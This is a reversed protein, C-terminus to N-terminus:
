MDFVMEVWDFNFTEPHGLHSIEFTNLTTNLWSFAPQMDHTPGSQAMASLPQTKARMASSYKADIGMEDQFAVGPGCVANPDTLDGRESIANSGSPVNDECGQISLPDKQFDNYRIIRRLSAEDVVNAHDRRFIQARSTKEYSYHDGYIREMATQNTIEFLFPNAIRNYSAYYSQNRLYGTHDAFVVYPGPMQELVFLLGDALPAGPEFRNTDLVMFMNNYTGSNYQAFTECWSAGDVALRNAIMNRAWDPVTQPVVYSWLSSNHNGITTETVLLGSSLSYFDDNSYLCGPYSSFSM